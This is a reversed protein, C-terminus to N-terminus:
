VFSRPAVRLVASSNGRTRDTVAEGLKTRFLMEHYQAGAPDSWPQGMMSKLKWLAGSRITELYLDFIGADISTATRLPAYATYASFTGRKDPVAVFRLTDRSTLVFGDIAGQKVQWDPRAAAVDPLTAPYVVREGDLNISLVSVVQAGSPASIQYEAVGASYGEADQIENWVLSKRCFDFCANRIANVAVPTPVGPCEPMVEPLFLDFSVSAM